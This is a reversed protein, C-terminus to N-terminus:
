KQCVRRVRAAPDREELIGKLLARVLPSTEPKRPVRLTGRVIAAQVDAASPAAAGAPPASATAGAGGAVLPPVSGSGAAPPPPVFPPRGYLMLFLVAGIAWVDAAFAARPTTPPPPGGPGGLWCLEPALYAPSAGGLRARLAAPTAPAGAGLPNLKVTGDVARLVTQPRIDGHPLGAAHLASTAAIVGAIVERAIREPLAHPAASGRSGEVVVGRAAHEFIVYAGAPPPPPPPGGPPPPSAGGGDDEDDSPPPPPLPTLVERYALLNPHRLRKLVAVEEASRLLVEAAAAPVWRVGVFTRASRSLALRAAGNHGRVRGLLVYDNVAPLSRAPVGAWGDEVLDYDEREPEPAGVGPPTEVTAQLPVLVSLCRGWVAAEPPSSFMLALRRGGATEVALEKDVVRLATVKSLRLADAPVGDKKSTWVLRSVDPSLWVRRAGWRFFPQRKYCAMGGLLEVACELPTREGVPRERCTDWM